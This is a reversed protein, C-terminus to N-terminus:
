ATQILTFRIILIMNLIVVGIIMSINMMQIFNLRDAVVMYRSTNEQLLRNNLRNIYINIYGLIKSAENYHAIYANIDRGRKSQVAQDAESLYTIIMNRTDKLLLGSETNPIENGIGDVKRGLENTSRLYDQLSQSHKTALFSELYQEVKNVNNYLENLEINSMFMTYMKDMLMRANYYTFLSTLAMIFTILMFYMLLKKRIRNNGTFCKFAKNM